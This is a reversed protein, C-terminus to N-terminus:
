EWQSISVINLTKDNQNVRSSHDSRSRRSWKVLQHDICGAEERNSASLPLRLRCAACNKKVNKKESRRCTRARTHAHRYEFHGGCVRAISM